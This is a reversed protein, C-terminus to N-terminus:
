SRVSARAYDSPSGSTGPWRVAAEAALANGAESWPAIFIVRMDRTQIKWGDPLRVYTDEYRVAGYVPTGDLDLELHAGVLGSAHDSESFELQVYHPTHVTLGMHLRASRIFDAISPRGKANAVGSSSFTADPAFSASVGDMDDGDAALFYGVVLDSIAARDELRRVRSELDM